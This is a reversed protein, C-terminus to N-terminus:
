ERGTHQGHSPFCHPAKGRRRRMRRLCERGAGCERPSPSLCGATRGHSPIHAPPAEDEGAREPLCYRARNEITRCSLTRWRDGTMAVRLLLTTHRARDTCCPLLHCAGSISRHGWLGEKPKPRRGRDAGRAAQGKGTCVVRSFPLAQALAPRLLPCRGELLTSRPQGGAGHCTHQM